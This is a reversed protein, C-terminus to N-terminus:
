YSSFSHGAKRTLFTYIKITKGHSVPLDIPVVITMNLDRAPIYDASSSNHNPNDSNMLPTWVFCMLAAEGCMHVNKRSHFQVSDFIIISDTVHPCYAHM